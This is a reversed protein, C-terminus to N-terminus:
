APSKKILVLLEALSSLVLDAGSFDIDRNLRNRIILCPMKAERAAHLGKLADEMVLCSEPPHELAQAAKLFIDPHPKERPASEKGM